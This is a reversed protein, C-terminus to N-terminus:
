PPVGNIGAPHELRLKQISIYLETLAAANVLMSPDDIATLLEDM